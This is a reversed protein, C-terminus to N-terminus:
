WGTTSRTPSTCSDATMPPWITPTDRTVPFTTSPAGNTPTKIVGADFTQDPHFNAFGLYVNSGQADVAVSTGPWFTATNPFPGAVVTRRGSPSLRTITLPPSTAIYLNEPPRRRRHGLSRRQKDLHCSVTHRGGTGQAGLRESLARGRISQRGLRRGAAM